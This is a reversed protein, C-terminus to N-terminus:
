TSCTWTSPCTCTATSTAGSFSACAWRGSSRTAGRPCLGRETSAAAAPPRITSACLAGTRESSARSPARRWSTRSAWTRARPTSARASSRRSRRRRSARPSSCSAGSNRRTALLRARRTSSCRRGPWKPFTPWATPTPDAWPWARMTTSSKPTAPWSSTAM